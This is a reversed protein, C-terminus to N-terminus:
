GPFAQGLKGLIQDQLLGNSAIIGTRNLDWGPQDFNRIKGGAETLILNAAGHDEPTSGNDIIGDLRGRAINCLDLAPAFNIM